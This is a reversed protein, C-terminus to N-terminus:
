GGWTGISEPLTVTMWTMFNTWKEGLWDGINQMHGWLQGAGYGINYPLESLWTQFNTWQEDLWGPISQMGNWLDEGGQAIGQPLDTTLWTNFNDAQTGLWAGIGTFGAWIDNGLSKLNTITDGWFKEVDAIKNEMTDDKNFWGFFDEFGKVLPGTLEAWGDSIPQIVNTDFWTALKDWGDKVPQIVYTDVWATLSAWGDKIPQIVTTDFWTAFKNWEETIWDVIPKIFVNYTGIAMAALSKVWPQNVFSDWWSGVEALSDELWGFPDVKPPATVIGKKDDVVPDGAPTNAESGGGGGGGGSPQVIAADTPEGGIGKLVTEITLIRTQDELSEWDAVVDGTLKKAMDIVENFEGAKIRSLNLALAADTWKQRQADIAEVEADRQDEIAQVIDENAKLQKELPKIQTQQINYIKDEVVRIAELKIERQEELDYIEQSIEFQREEIEVRSM